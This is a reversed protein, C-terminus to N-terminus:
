KREPLVERLISNKHYINQGFMQLCCFVQYNIALEAGFVKVGLFYDVSELKRWQVCWIYLGLRAWGVSLIKKIGPNRNKKPPLQLIAGPRTGPRHLKPHASQDCTCHPRLQKQAIPFDFGYGGQFLCKRGGFLFGAFRKWGDMKWPLSATLKLSPLTLLKKKWTVSGGNTKSLFIHPLHWNLFFAHSKMDRRLLIKLSFVHPM